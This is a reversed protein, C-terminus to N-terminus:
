KLLALARTAEARVTADGDGQAARQLADRGSPDGVSALATAAARRVEPYGDYLLVRSLGEVGTHLRGLAEVAAQRLRPDPDNLALSLLTAADGRAELVKVANMRQYVDGNALLVEPPRLSAGSVCAIAGTDLQVVCRALDAMQGSTERWYTLQNGARTPPAAMAEIDVPWAGGIPQTWVDRVPEDVLALAARSLGLPDTVRAAVAVMAAAGSLVRGDVTARRAAPDIVVGPAPAFSPTRMDDGHTAACASLWSAVMLLFPSM